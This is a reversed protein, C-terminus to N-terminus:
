MGLSPALLCLLRLASSPSMRPLEPSPFSPTSSPVLFRPIDTSIGMRTAAALYGERESVNLVEWRTARWTTLLMKGSLEEALEAIEEPTATGKAELREMETMASQVGISISDALTTPGGV